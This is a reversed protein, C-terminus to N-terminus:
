KENKYPKSCLSVETYPYIKLINKELTKLVAYTTAVTMKEDFLITAYIFNKDGSTRTKYQEIKRVAEHAHLLALIAQQEQLPIEADLLIRFSRKTVTYAAFFIYLAVLCGVLSDFFSWGLWIYLGLAIFGGINLFIDSSYHTSDAMVALSKTQKIVKRQFLVLAITIVLSFILVGIGTSAHHIPHPYLLRELSAKFIFIGSITILIAQGLAGLSELKEHGFKYDKTPPRAAHYIAFLNMLSAGLDLISDTLTSLISISDTYLWALGKIVILLSAVGVATYTVKKKLLENSLRQLKLNMRAQHSQHLHHKAKHM